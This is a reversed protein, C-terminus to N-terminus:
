FQYALEVSLIPTLGYKEIGDALETEGLNLLAIGLKSSDFQSVETSLDVEAALVKALGGGFTLLFNNKLEHSYTALIDFALIKTKMKVYPRYGAASILSEVTRFDRELNAAKAVESVNEEGDASIQSLGLEVGWGTPEETFAYRLYVRYLASDEFATKITSKYDDKNLLSSAVSGIAEAYPEPTTGFDLGLKLQPSAHLQLGVGVYLPFITRAHLSVIPAGDWNDPLEEATDQARAHQSVTAALLFLTSFFFIRLNQILM